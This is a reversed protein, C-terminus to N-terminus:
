TCILGFQSAKNLLSLRRYWPLYRSGVFFLALCQDGVLTFM